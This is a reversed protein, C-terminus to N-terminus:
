QQPHKGPIILQGASFGDPVVVKRGRDSAARIEVEQATPLVELTVNVHIGGPRRNDRTM